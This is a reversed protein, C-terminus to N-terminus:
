SSGSGGRHHGQDRTRRPRPRIEQCKQVNRTLVASKKLAPIHFRLSVECTAPDDRREVHPGHRNVSLGGTGKGSLRSIEGTLAFQVADVVGSKGSGNPGSVVFNMRNPEIELERIGRLERIAVSEIQIM